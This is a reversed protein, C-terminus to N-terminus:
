DGIAAALDAADVVVYRHRRSTGCIRDAATHPVCKVLVPTSPMRRAEHEMQARTHLRRPRPTLSYDAWRIDGGPVQDVIGISVGPHEDHTTRLLTAASVGADFQERAPTTATLALALCIGGLTLAVGLGLPESDYRRAVWSWLRQVSVGAGLALPIVIWYNWYDHNSAGDRLLVPYALTVGVVGCVTLRM